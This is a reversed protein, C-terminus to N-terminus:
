PGASRGSPCPSTPRPRRGAATARKFERGPAGGQPRSPTGSGILFPDPVCAFLPGPRSCAGRAGHAGRGSRNFYGVLTMYPDTLDSPGYTEYLYQAAALQAVFVRIAVSKTRVGQACNGVYRRGPTKDTRRRRAFFTDDASLGSPPFVATRRAFLDHIQRDARRVTATSAIVKPRVSVGSEPEWTSLRDVATEYLGTLSGLPGSILHLEDQVILDPPRVRVADVTSAAEHDGAAPHSSSEWDADV